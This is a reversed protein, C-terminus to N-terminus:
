GGITYWCSEKSRLEYPDAWNFQLKGDYIRTNIGKVDTLNLLIDLVHEIEANSPHSKEIWKLVDCLIFYASEENEEHNEFLCNLFRKRLKTQDVVEKAQEYTKYCMNWSPYDCPDYKEYKLVIRWNKAYHDLETECFRRDRDKELCLVGDDIAQYVDDPNSIDYVRNPEVKQISEQEFMYRSDDDEHFRKWETPFILESILIGDIKRITNNAIKDVVYNGCKYDFVGVSVIWNGNVYKIYYVIDGHKFEDEHTKKSSTYIDM